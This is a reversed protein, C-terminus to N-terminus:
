KERGTRTYVFDEMTDYENLDRQTQLRYFGHEDLRDYIEEQEEFTQAM